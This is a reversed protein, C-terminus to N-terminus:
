ADADVAKTMIYITDLQARQCLAEIDAKTVSQIREIFTSESEPNEVLRRNHMMEIMQKPRDKMEKRHSLIIKKALAMKEDTFQGKKFQEFADIITTKAAEYADSSVGSLVFLYGNKGDIQSHISYALSQKERVENFLVSSPDGGFMMNFVVLAPYDEKGYQTPFRFGMNLKTQDIEETEIVENVPQDPHVPQADDASQYTFPQINFASTLKEITTAEDVNGVVYVSWSDNQLMSQYTDFLSQANIRALHERQGVAPYSYAHDGFMYKLLNLYSLQTKNDEIAVLKNQLLRKEQALFTEDFAGDHVLPNMIVEKLLQIGEDFLSLDDQLYRENVLELSITIVHRDKFKTVNSNLYAGYLRSLHQNFAKDTPYKKTARVLMKSLLSRETMTEIDLPAMLKFTITTTKFKDTPLVHKPLDSHLTMYM